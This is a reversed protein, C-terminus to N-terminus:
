KNKASYCAIMEKINEKLEQPKIIEIADWWSICWSSLTNTNPQKTRLIIFGDAEELDFSEFWIKDFLEDRVDPVFKFEIDYLKQKDPSLSLGDFSKNTLKIKQIRSLYFSKIIDEGEKFAYLIWNFGVCTLRVPLLNYSASKGDYFRKYKLELILHENIAKSALVIKSFFNKRNTKSFAKVQNYILDSNLKLPLYNSALSILVSTQPIEELILKNNKSFIRIGLDRLAKIDRNITVEAVKFLFAADAKSLEEDNIIRALLESRRLIDDTYSKM